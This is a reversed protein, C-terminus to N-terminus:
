FRGTVGIWGPGISVEPPPTAPPESTTGGEAEASDGSIIDTTLFLTAGAALFVLGLGLTVNAGTQLGRGKDAEDSLDAPCRGDTCKDKLDNYKSLHMGGLIAFTLLSAAGVGGVVYSVIRQNPGGDFPNFGGGSPEEETVPQEPVPAAPPKLDVTQESGATVEVDRRMEGTTRSLVVSVQGPEVPIPQSWDARDVPHGAVVLAASSDLADVDVTILGIKPRVRNMTQEAATATDLYKPDAAAAAKAEARVRRAELFAEASRGLEALTNAIMLHSNPSPLVTYSERFGKLAEEYRKAEFDAKARKYKERAEVKDPTEAAPTEALAPRPAIGGTL